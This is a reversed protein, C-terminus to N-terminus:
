VAAPVLAHFLRKSSLWGDVLTQVAVFVRQGAAPAGFMSVYLSTIDSSGLAPAPCTGLIRTDPMRRVGSRQPSCARVITNEGPSTPCTLKLAPVGAPNTIVLGQPALDPFVPYAPPDDVAEQGFLALTANIKVFFQLGTLPGSQGLTPRTQHQAAATAWTDQQTETLADYQRAYTTFNSRVVMQQPSNPNAPVVCTRRILGYRSPFTVTLGLKGTSPVDIIKM